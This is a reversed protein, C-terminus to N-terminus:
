SMASVLDAPNVQKSARYDFQSSAMVPTFLHTFYFRHISQWGVPPIFSENRNLRSADTGIIYTPIDKILSKVGKHRPLKVLGVLTEQFHCFGTGRDALIVKCYHEQAALTNKLIVAQCVHPQVNSRRAPVVFGAPLELLQGPIHCGFLYGVSLLLRTIPDITLRTVACAPPLNLM